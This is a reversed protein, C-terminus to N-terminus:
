LFGEHFLELTETAVKNGTADLSPGSWKVPYVGQLSWSAVPDGHSDLLTIQATSKSEDRVKRSLWGMLKASDAKNMARTLTIKPYSVRTPLWLKFDNNGGEEVETGEFNVTLGQCQTWGGLDLGDVQVRFRMSLGLMATSSMEPM